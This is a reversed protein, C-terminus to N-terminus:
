ILPRPVREGSVPLESHTVLLPHRIQAIRRFLVEKGQATLAFVPVTTGAQVLARRGCVMRVPGSACGTVLDAHAAIKEAEEHTTGTMHVTFILADPSIERVKEAMEASAVTVAIKRYGAKKAAAIGRIPDMSATEKDPVIGGGEEIGRIVGLLPSTKVLGSMRGGIGQVMSPNTVVVTGAGDCAIIVADLMKEELGCRLIESAGFGVFDEDAYLDRDDTCMGFQQIRGEINRRIAEPTIETVPVAFRKALSCEEICPEGVEIVRGDRIVVRCRGVAEIIHEDM